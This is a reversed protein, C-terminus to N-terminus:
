PVKKKTIVVGLPLGGAPHSTSIIFLSVNFRDLSSSSDCFILEASQLVHEHVRSMLPTCLALIFPQTSKVKKTKKPKQPKMDDSDSESGREESITESYAQLIAKGGVDSYQENYLRVEERLRDFLEKGNEEGFINCRWERYFRHVWQVGPNIANDAISGQGQEKLVEEEYHHHASSASHGSSFLQTYTVKTAEAVPRFGLVHASEIPHNHHFIFKVHAKHTGRYKQVKGKPPKHITIKLTSSCQTKKCKVGTLMTKPKVKKASLQKNTLQKRFHQCHMDIKFTVKKMSPKYTRTVRYTCKTKESLAEVWQKVENHDDLNVRVYVEFNITSAGCFKQQPLKTFNEVVYTYKENTPLVCMLEKNLSASPVSTTEFSSISSNSDSHSMESHSMESDSDCSLKPSESDSNEGASRSFPFQKDQGPSSNENMLCASHLEKAIRDRIRPM